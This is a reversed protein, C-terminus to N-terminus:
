GSWDIEGPRSSKGPAFQGTAGTAGWSAGIAGKSPASSWQRVIEEFDTGQWSIVMTPVQDGFPKFSDQVGGSFREFRGLTLLDPSGDAYGEPAGCRGALM